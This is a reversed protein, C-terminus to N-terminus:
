KPIVQHQDYGNSTSFHKGCAYCVTGVARRDIKTASDEMVYSLYTSFKLFNFHGILINWLSLSFPQQYQDRELFQHLKQLQNCDSHKISLQSLPSEMILNRDRISKKKTSKQYTTNATFWRNSTLIYNM